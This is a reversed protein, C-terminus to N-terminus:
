NNPKRVNQAMRLNPLYETSNLDNKAGQFWFLTFFISNSVYTLVYSYFYRKVFSESRDFASM